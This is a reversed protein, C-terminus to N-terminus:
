QSDGLFKENMRAVVKSTHSESLHAYRKVMALTKHGLVEAIEALSSGSMILYSAACHRMDHPKFDTIHAMKLAQKWPFRLDIPQSHISSPFLLKANSEAQAKLDKLLKLALGTLPVFRREGNKTQHLTIRGRELNVDKWTLSLIEGTRMGTSLALIVFPYLLPNSSAKCANLFLQREEDDLFRVRGRPERPKAVKLMPNADLWEWERYCLTFVSSLSAMYRVVTAPARKKGKEFSENALKDRAESIKASTIENLFYKGLEDRWWNLHRYVNRANKPKTPLVNSIYRDIAEKLTHKNAEPIKFCGQRMESEVQQIWIKADTKRAFTKSQTPFGKVRILVRFRTNGNKDKREEIYAMNEMREISKISGQGLM